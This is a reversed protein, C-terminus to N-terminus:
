ATLLGARVETTPLTFYFTAGQGPASEVWVNGGHQKVLKDVITLGAGTGGGYDGQGHLRKFLKFINTFHKADIGIGNDAVYYITHGVSEQPCGPRPDSEGPGIYGVEVRRDTQDSYKLANSLLNVFIQRSRVRNCQVTPLRRPVLVQEGETARSGVAEMAEAVMQSLDVAEISLDSGGVRSFHLLSDLLSDMRLTLRMLRDLKGRNEGGVLTADQLLQNAYLHIGHLPEKLDHSAVYAFADLEENSRAMDANEDVRQEIRGAALDVLLLRLAVTAEIEVPKWPLSRQRVSESFLEFSHRPTLRPGNPGPVTPKDHPNGGWNVTQLTEPRFWMVLSRETLSLSLGVLGSAVKAFAAAPPYALALRDTSYVSRPGTALQTDILWDGLADLQADAPTNGRRWWRGGHYSAVGGADLGGLLSPTGATLGALDGERAVAALLQQHVGEIKRGYAAHEKDEAAQHQLTVVQALFECAARVQYPVHRPGAYHHCAILGWLQENRRIAMTLAAAVGMNRLYETYMISVGRLACYTMDLPKGTEPNVLPVLEALADAVDPVPRIWTKTFIERSPKPIDEAPYHLGLWADLDARRSEAIVEGHGDAHFKYVMVRDLGTLERIETAVLDCFQKLSGSTQLRAVTKKVLAYYDPKGLDSRGTSEFELIAVGDITHVTVDLLAAPGGNGQATFAPLTLVYLPNCDATEKGLLARLQAEGDPGLVTGAPQGLLSNAAHGLLAQANDSAQLIRLDGLRLVLLAGHAQVCGPTQVPESDCNTIGLGHRKISYPLSQPPLAVSPTQTM